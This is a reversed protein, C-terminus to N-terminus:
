LELSVSALLEVRDVRLLAADIREDTESCIADVIDSRLQPAEGTEQPSESARCQEFEM